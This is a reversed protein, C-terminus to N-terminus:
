SGYMMHVDNITCKHLIITDGPTIKMNEFNQNEHKPSGFPCFTTWFSLINQRDREM